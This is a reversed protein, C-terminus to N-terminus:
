TLENQYSKQFYDDAVNCNQSQSQIQAPIKRLATQKLAKQKHAILFARWADEVTYRKVCCPNRCIKWEAIFDGLASAVSDVKQVGADIFTLYPAPAMDILGDPRSTTKAEYTNVMEM